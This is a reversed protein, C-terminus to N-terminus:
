DRWAVRMAMKNFEHPAHRRRTPGCGRWVVTMRGHDPEILLTHLVPEVAQVAGGKRADIALEPAAPVRLEFRPRRPHIHQLVIAESGRLYPLQLTLSAGSSVELAHHPPKTGDGAALAPPVLGRAVEAPPREFGGAIPVVGLLAVRPYWGYDIWDTGRPLPMRHWQTFDQVALRDTRVADDPDEIQPLELAEVAERTPEILYGRGHPNRPYLYPSAADLQAETMGRFRPDERAPNGHRAEHVRDRGGYAHTYRLPVREIATPSSFRLGGVPALACRREGLVRLRTTRGAVAVEADVRSAQGDGYVHGQVVVDTRLKYVYTDIDAVLLEPLDPDWVPALVFGPQEAAVGHRGADDFVYTRKALIALAWRGDPLRVSLQSATDSPATQVRTM